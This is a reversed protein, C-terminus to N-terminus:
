RRPSATAVALILVPQGPEAVREFGITIKAQDPNLLRSRLAAELSKRWGKPAVKVGNRRFILTQQIKTM